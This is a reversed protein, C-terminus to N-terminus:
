TKMRVHCVGSIGGMSANSRAKGTRTSRYRRRLPLPPTPEAGLPSPMSRSRRISSSTVTDSMVSRRTLWGHPRAPPPGPATPSFQSSGSPSSDHASRRGSLHVIRTEAPSTTRISVGPPPPHPRGGTALHVAMATRTRRVDFASTTAIRTRLGQPYRLPVLLREGIFRRIPGSAPAGRGSDDHRSRHFGGHGAHPGEGTIM